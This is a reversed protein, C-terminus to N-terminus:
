SSCLCYKRLVFIISVRNVTIQNCFEEWSDGLPTEEAKRILDEEVKKNFKEKMECLQELAYEYRKKMDDYHDGVFNLM